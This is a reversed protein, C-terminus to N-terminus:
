WTQIDIKAQEDDTKRQEPTMGARHKWYWINLLAYVAILLAFVTWIFLEM